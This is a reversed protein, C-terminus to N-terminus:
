NPKVGASIKDNLGSKHYENAQRVTSMISREEASGHSKIVPKAIGLFPAGGFEKHDLSKTLHDIGTRAFLGGLKTLPSKYFMRKISRGMFKGMGEILKLAINGTFGDCVVVDCFDNPLDRGECNGVFNLSSQKLLIYADRYLPIGKHEESGNNLLGVRPNEIGMVNQCYLAGMKAFQLLLEPTADINAGSDVIIFPNELPVIAGLAARRVGKHRRVYMTSATFLAGTNGASILVDGYGEALLHCAVAMSSDKKENLVVSPEDTMDVSVPAHIVEIKVDRKPLPVLIGEIVPKDGVLVLDTDYELAGAVAGKVVTYPATDGGMADVIIKTKM